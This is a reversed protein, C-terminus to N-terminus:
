VSSKIKMWFFMLSLFDIKHPLKQNNLLLDYEYFSEKQSQIIILNLSDQLEHASLYESNISQGKCRKIFRFMFCVARQLRIFNSFREFNILGNDFHKDNYINHFCVHTKLEPLAHLTEEIFPKKRREIALFCRKARHFSDGSTDSSVKLPIRVCFRGNELRITNKVFHEECLAEEVSYTSSEHQSIEEIQWFLSLQTQLDDLQSSKDNAITVFNCKVPQNFKNALGTNIPGSVVWGLRTEFLIPQHNGLVIRESGLLNWFVDAGLIMDIPAPTHYYPDALPIDTPINLHMQRHPVNDTITPLVLCLLNDCYSECLSKIRVRCMKEVQSLLNNIGQISKNTYKSPINLQKFLKESMICSSSDSDLLARAIHEKNNNDYCRILATSLLIDPLNSTHSHATLNASLAVSHANPTVACDEAGASPSVESRESGISRHKSKNNIHKSKYNTNHILTHHKYNCVKCGSRKCNKPYHGRHFCNYCVKYKPVVSMREDISLALFQPCTSLYHDGNCEPCLFSHSSSNINDSLSVMSKLKANHKTPIDPSKKTKSLQARELTEIFDAREQMFEM